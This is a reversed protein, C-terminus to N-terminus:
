KLGRPSSTAPRATRFVPAYCQGDKYLYGNEDCGKRDLAQKLWCYGQIPVQGTSPCRGKSDTQRQGPIPNPPVDQAIPAWASPPASSSPATLASDGVAVTGADRAELRVSGRAETPVGGPRTGLLWAIAMAVVPGAAAAIRWHRGSGIRERSSVRRSSADVNAPRAEEPDFLPVDATPGAERAAAEMAEAVEGASGRAEPHVSLMRSVLADLEVCCRGNLVRPALHLPGERRWLRAGEGALGLERAYEGTVLRWATVGLAFVDDAPGPAYPV